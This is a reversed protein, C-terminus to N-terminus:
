SFFIFLLEFFFFFRSFLLSHHAAIRTYLAKFMIMKLEVVSTEIDELRRANQKRWICWILCLSTLRWVELINGRGV